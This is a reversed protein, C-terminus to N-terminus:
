AVSKAEFHECLCWITLLIYIRVCTCVGFEISWFEAYELVHFSSVKLGKGVLSSGLDSFGIDVFNATNGPIDHYCEKSQM